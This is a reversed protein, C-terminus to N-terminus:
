MDATHSESLADCSDQIVEAGLDVLKVGLFSTTPVLILLYLVERM